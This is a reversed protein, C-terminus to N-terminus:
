SDFRSARFTYIYILSTRPVHMLGKIKGEKEGIQQSPSDMSIVAEALRDRRRFFPWASVAYGKTRYERGSNGGVATYLFHWSMAACLACLGSASCLHRKGAQASTCPQFASHPRMHAELPVVLM